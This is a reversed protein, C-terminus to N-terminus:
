RPQIEISRTSFSINLNFYELFNLGLLGEVRLSTPLNHCLVDINEVTEGIATLRSVTIINAEVIGNGTVIQQQRKPKSLGYGLATAVKTPITTITAGTDLGVTLSHFNNANVGGVRLRVIILPRPYAFSTYGM